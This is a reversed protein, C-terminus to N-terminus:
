LSPRSSKSGIQARGVGLYCFGLGMVTAPDYINRADLLVNGSMVARLRPLDLNRFENWETALVVADARRAAAYADKAFFLRPSQLAVQASEIAEPDFARVYAGRNLFLKCLRLAPSERVDNTNPKYSLGLLCVRRGHLSGGLQRKLKHVVEGAQDQNVQIAARVMHNEVGADEFTRLFARTDKPLCSGGFGPGPHLFKAGIRGDLGLAKAIVHVDTGMRDCLRAIENIYSIKIALFSNTAYKILEATRNDTEIFPTQILYLPRYIDKVIALARQSNGGLLVRNPRMFDEVAAGERLFEPNSIIDFDQISIQTSRVWEAMQEATGAPVTSKIVIVKYDNMHRGIVRAVDRIHSLNARGDKRSETGVAVFIVLASQVSTRLDTSFYLRKQSLGRRVLEQLGPEYVPIKGTQLYRIKAQDADACTVQMGFDALCAGVVLGVFGTGIVTIHM